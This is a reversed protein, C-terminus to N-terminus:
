RRHSFGSFGAEGDDERLAAMAAAKARRACGRGSPSRETLARLQATAAAPQQKTEGRPAGGSEKRGQQSHLTAPSQQGWTVAEDM